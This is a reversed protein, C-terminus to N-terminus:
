SWIVLALSALALLSTAGAIVGAFIALLKLNPEKRPALSMLPAISSVASRAPVPEPFEIELSITRM